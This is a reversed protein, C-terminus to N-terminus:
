LFILWEPVLLYALLCASCICSEPMLCGGLGATYLICCLSCNLSPVATPTSGQSFVVPLPITHPACGLANGFASATLRKDREAHWAATRQEGEGLDVAEASAQAEALMGRVPFGKLTKALIKRWGLHRSFPRRCCQQGSCCRERLCAAIKGACGTCQAPLTIICGSWLMNRKLHKQM